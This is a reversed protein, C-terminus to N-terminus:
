VTTKRPHSSGEPNEVNERTPISDSIEFIRGVPKPTRFLLKPFPTGPTVHGTNWPVNKRAKLVCLFVGLSKSVFHRTWFVKEALELRESFSHSSLLKCRGQDEKGQKKPFLLSFWGFFCPNNREESGRFDRPFFPFVSLILCPFNRAVFFALFDLFALFPLDPPYWVWTRLCTGKRSACSLLSVGLLKSM